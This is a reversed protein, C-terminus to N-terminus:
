IFAPHDFKIEGKGVRVDILILKIKLLKQIKEAVEGSGSLDM